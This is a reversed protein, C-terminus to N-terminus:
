YGLAVVHQTIGDRDSCGFCWSVNGTIHTFTKGSVQIITKKFLVCIHTQMFSIGNFVIHRILSMWTRWLNNNQSVWNKWTKHNKKASGVQHPFTVFRVAAREGSWLGYGEVSAGGSLGCKRETLIDRSVCSMWIGAQTVNYQSSQFPTVYSTCTKYVLHPFPGSKRFTIKM